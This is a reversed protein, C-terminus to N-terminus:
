RNKRTKYDSEFEEPNPRYVTIVFCKQGELAAVVHLPENELNYLLCSPYPFDQAYEEIIEGNRAASIVEVRGIGRELMRELAHKRWVFEDIPRM